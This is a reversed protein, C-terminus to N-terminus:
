LSARTRLIIEGAFIILVAVAFATTVAQALMTRQARASMGETLWIILPLIGAINVAVFFPLFSELYANM